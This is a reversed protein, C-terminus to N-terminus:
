STSRALQPRNTSNMVQTVLSLQPLFPFAVGMIASFAAALQEETAVDLVENANLTEGAYAFVLEAVKEPFQILAFTLGRSMANADASGVISFSSTLEGLETNLKVRWERAKLVTLVPIQYEKDGLKVKLPAKALIDSESRKEM